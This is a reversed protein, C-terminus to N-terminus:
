CILNASMAVVLGRCVVSSKDGCIKKACIRQSYIRDGFLAIWSQCDLRYIGFISHYHTYPINLFPAGGLPPPTM